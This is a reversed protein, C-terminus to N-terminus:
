GSALNSAIPNCSHDGPMSVLGPVQDRKLTSSLGADSGVPVLMHHLVKFMNLMLAHQAEYPSCFGDVVSAGNTTM